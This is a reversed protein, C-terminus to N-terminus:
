TTRSRPRSYRFICANAGEVVRRLAEVRMEPFARRTAEFDLECLVPSQEPAGVAACADACMCTVNIELVSDTHEDSTDVTEQRVGMTAFLPRAREFGRILPVGSILPGMNARQREPYGELLTERAAEDGIEDRLRLFRALRECQMRRFAQERGAASGAASNTTSGTAGAATDTM